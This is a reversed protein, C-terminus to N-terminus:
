ADVEVGMEGLLEAMEDCFAQTVAGPEAGNMPCRDCDARDDACLALAQVARRLRANEREFRACREALQERTYLNLYATASM